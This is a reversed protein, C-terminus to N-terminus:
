KDELPQIYITSTLSQSDSLSLRRVYNHNIRRGGEAGSDATIFVQNMNPIDSYLQTREKVQHKYAKYNHRQKKKLLKM